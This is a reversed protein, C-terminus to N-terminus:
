GPRRMRFAEKVVTYESYGMRMIPQMAATNVRGDEIFKDDIYVGIVQGVVIAYGGAANDHGPLDVTKAYRCELGVPSAAVRPPKVLVSGAKELGALEFEDVGSEVPASSQNMQERLEWTAMNCVFEGTEVINTISDKRGASGFVVYHPNDSMANFFSYPALNVVGAASISSIWGIPRPAVLAKFPDYQHGHNNEETGYFM